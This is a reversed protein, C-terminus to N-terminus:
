AADDARIMQALEHHRDSVSNALRNLSDALAGIAGSFDANHGELDLANSYLVRALDACNNLAMMDGEIGEAVDRVTKETETKM